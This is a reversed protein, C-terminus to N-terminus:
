GQGVLHVALCRKDLEREGAASPLVNGTVAAGSPRIGVRSERRCAVGVIPLRELLAVTLQSQPLALKSLRTAIQALAQCFVIGV